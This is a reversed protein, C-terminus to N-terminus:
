SVKSHNRKIGTTELNWLSNLIMEFIIFTESKFLALSKEMIKDHPDKCTAFLAYNGGKFIM